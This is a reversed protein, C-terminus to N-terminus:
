VMPGGLGLRRYAVGGGIGLEYANYKEYMLQTTNFALYNTWLRKEAINGAVYSASSYFQISSASTATTPSYKFANKSLFQMGEILLFVLPPWTNPADWQQGTGQATTTLM